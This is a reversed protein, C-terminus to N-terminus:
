HRIFGVIDKVANMTEAAIASARDSGDALIRDIHGPDQTLRKMEAAVPSLKAVSLDVLAGKFTSFQAGGFQRLV